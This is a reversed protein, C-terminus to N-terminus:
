EGRRAKAIATNAIVWRLAALYGTNYFHDITDELRWDDYADFAQMSELVMPEVTQIEATILAAFEAASVIDGSPTVYGEGSLILEKTDAM